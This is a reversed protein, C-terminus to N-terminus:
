GEPPGPEELTRGAGRTVQALAQFARKTHWGEGTKLLWSLVSRGKPTLLARTIHEPAMAGSVAGITTGAFEGGPIGSIDGALYGAGGGAAALAGRLVLSGPGVKGREHAEVARKLLDRIPQINSGLSDRFNKSEIEKGLASKPNTIDDFWNSVAAPKRILHAIHEELKDVAFDRKASGIAELATKAPGVVSPRASRTLADMDEIVAGTLVKAGGLREGSALEFKKVAQGLVRRIRVVRDFDLPENHIVERVRGILDLLQKGEPFTTGFELAEAQIQDLAKATKPLEHPKLRIGARALTAYLDKTPPQPRLGQAGHGIEEAGKEKGIISAAKPIGPIFRLGAKGLQLGKAVLSGFPIASLGLNVPDAPALGSAQAVTEGAVGGVAPFLLSGLVSPLTEVAMRPVAPLKSVAQRVTTQGPIRFGGAPESPQPLRPSAEPTPTASLKTTVAQRLEEESAPERDLVVAFVGRNTTVEFEPM